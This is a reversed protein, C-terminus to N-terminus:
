YKAWLYERILYWVNTIIISLSIIDYSLIGYYHKFISLLIDFITQSNKIWFLWCLYIIFVITVVNCQCNKAMITLICNEYYLQFYNRKKWRHYTSTSNMDIGWVLEKFSNLPVRCSIQLSVYTLYSVRSYVFIM